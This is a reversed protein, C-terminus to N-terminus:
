EERYLYISNGFVAEPTRDRYAAFLETSLTPDVAHVASGNLFAAGIAVYRTRPLPTGPPVVLNVYDVGLFRLTMWGGLTAARVRTEGRRRLYAALAQADDGWEVNSDSVYRWNPGRDTLQNTYPIYHPFARAAEVVIWALMGATALQPLRRWRNRTELMRDMLAGGAIFLFPFAPLYHRIGINIHGAM